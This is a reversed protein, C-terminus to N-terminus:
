LRSRWGGIGRRTAEWCLGSGSRRIRVHFGSSEREDFEHKLSRHRCSFNVVVQSPEYWSGVQLLACSPLTPGCSSVNFPRSMSVAPCMRGPCRRLDTIAAARVQNPPYLRGPRPPFRSTTRAIANGTDERPRRSRDPPRLSKVANPAQEEVDEGNEAIKIM